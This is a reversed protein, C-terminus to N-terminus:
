LLRLRRPPTSYSTVYSLTTLWLVVESVTGCSTSSRLLLTNVQPESAAESVALATTLETMATQWCPSCSFASLRAATGLGVCSSPLLSKFATLVPAFESATPALAAPLVTLPAMGSDPLPM